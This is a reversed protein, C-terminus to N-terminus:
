EEPEYDEPGWEVGTLEREREQNAEIAEQIARQRLYMLEREQRLVRIYQQKEESLNLKELEDGEFGQAAARSLPSAPVQPIVRRTPRSPGATAVESNESPM